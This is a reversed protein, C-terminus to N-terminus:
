ECLVPTVNPFTHSVSLKEPNTRGGTVDMVRRIVDHLSGPTLFVVDPGERKM